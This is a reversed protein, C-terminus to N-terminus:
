KTIVQNIQYNELIKEDAELGSNEAVSQFDPYDQEKIKIIIRRM